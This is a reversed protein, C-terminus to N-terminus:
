QKAVMEWGANIPKIDPKIGNEIWSMAHVLSIMEHKCYTLSRKRNIGTVREVFAIYAKTDNENSPAWRNVIGEITNLGYKRFYTRLIVFMARYGYEMSIFSKFAPHVKRNVEGKFLTASHRINGPNNLRYM